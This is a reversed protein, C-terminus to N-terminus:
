WEQPVFGKPVAIRMMDGSQEIVFLGAQLTAKKVERSFIAGALAGLIRKPPLGQSARHEKLMELRRIHHAIDNIKKNLEPRTKVEVALITDDNELLLDYEAKTKGRKEGPIKYNREKIDEFHYGLEAFRSVTGTGVMYESLEGFSNHLGGIQEGNSKVLRATERLVRDTEQMRRDTEQM